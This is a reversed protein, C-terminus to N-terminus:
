VNLKTLSLLDKLSRKHTFCQQPNLTWSLSELTFLIHDRSKPQYSWRGIVFFNLRNLIVHSTYYLTSSTYPHSFYKLLYLHSSCLVNLATSAILSHLPRSSYRVPKSIPQYGLHVLICTLHLLPASLLHPFQNLIKALLTRVYLLNNRLTFPTSKIRFYKPCLM